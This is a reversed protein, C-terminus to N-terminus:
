QVVITGVMGVTRHAPCWYQYSIGSTSFTRTFLVPNPHTATIPPIGGDNKLHPDGVGDAFIVSHGCGAAADFADCALDNYVWQVTTGVPVTTQPPDNPCLPDSADCFRFNNAQLCVAGSTSCSAGLEVAGATHSPVSIMGAAIM